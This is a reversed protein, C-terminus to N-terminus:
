KNKNYFLRIAFYLRIYIIAFFLTSRTFVQFLVVGRGDYLTTRAVFIQLRDSAHLKFLLRTFIYIHVYLQM